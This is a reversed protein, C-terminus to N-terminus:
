VPEPTKSGAYVGISGTYLMRGVKAKLCAEVVNRTGLVNTRYLEGSHKEWLSLKGASHVVVDRMPAGDRLHLHWDDPRHLTIRHM